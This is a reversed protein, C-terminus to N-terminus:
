WRPTDAPCHEDLVRTKLKLSCGCVSCCPQTGKAFCQDGKLDVLPCTMCIKTRRRSEIEIKAPRTIYNWIGILIPKIRLKKEM